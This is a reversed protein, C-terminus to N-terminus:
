FPLEFDEPHNIRNITEEAVELIERKDQCPLDQWTLKDPICSSLVINGKWLDVSIIFQNEIFTGDADVWGELENYADDKDMGDYHDRNIEKDPGVYVAKCLYLPERSKRKLLLTTLDNQVQVENEM